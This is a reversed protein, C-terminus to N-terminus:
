LKWINLSHSIGFDSSSISMYPRHLAQSEGVSYPRMHIERFIIPALPEDVLNNLNHVECFLLNDWLIHNIAVEDDENNKQNLWKRMLREGLKWPCWPALFRLLEECSVLGDQCPDCITLRDFWPM